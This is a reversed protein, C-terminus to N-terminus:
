PTYRLIAAATANDPMDQARVAVVRGDATLVRRIIEDVLGPAGETSVGGFTVEGTDSISGAVTADIDVLLTDVMGFTATRAIDALDTVARGEGRRREFLERLEALEDAYYRDLIGRARLGLEADSLQEPNGTLSEALLMPYSNVSRYLADIPETAALILPVDRGALVERLQRDIARAYQRVRLKRGETGQIRGKPARGSLSAKRAHDAASDPLERVKMEEASGDAGVEILRVSGEALALVFATQPFTTARLLPKIRFRDGVFVGDPLRNPLRYTRVREPTGLVVLSNSQFRWFDEDDILDDFEEQLAARATGDSIRELAARAQNSFAIRNGDPSATDIETPTYISVSWPDAEGVLRQVEDRTPIDTHLM